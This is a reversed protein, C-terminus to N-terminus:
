VFRAKEIDAGLMIALEDPSMNSVEAKLCDTCIWEGSYEVMYEDGDVARKCWPCKIAKAPSDSQNYPMAGSVMGNELENM